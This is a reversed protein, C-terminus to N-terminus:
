FRLRMLAGEGPADDVEIRGGHAEMITAAIALGLGAGGNRSRDLRYFRDFIRARQDAPIGPGHDRVSCCRGPGSVVEVATGRPTHELANEIVNRLARGIAEAHGRVTAGGADVFTISRGRAVALPLLDTSVDRALANLDVRDDAAIEITSAQAMDLMQDVLRKMRQADRTLKTKTEGDPLNGIGLMLIALPTRLEHAANGAFERLTQVSRELRDLMRNVSGVLAQVEWLPTSAEIRAAIQAPDIRDVAAITEDLPKLTSRVVSFNFLLLLGSLLALPLVVHFRVEDFIVPVFPKFGRGAIAVTIWYPRDAVSVRRTGTLLFRDGWTERQTRIVLFSMPPEQDIRLDGDDHRAIIAGGKEHIVFARRTDPALPRALDESLAIGAGAGGPAIERAIRAAEASILLQDLENPNRVYMWVVALLQALMFAFGVVALRVSITFFLTRRRRRPARMGSGDAIPSRSM